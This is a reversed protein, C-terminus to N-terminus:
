SRAARRFLQALLAALAAAVGALVIWAARSGTAHVDFPIAAGFAMRQGIQVVGSHNIQIEAYTQGNSQVLRVSDPVLWGTVNGGRYWGEHGASESYYFVEIAAPNTDVSVPIQITVPADYVGAPLIRYVSSRANAAVPPIPRVNFDEQMRLSGGTETKDEAVVFTQSVPGLIDGKVTVGGVALTVMEGAPLLSDPAFVVWGDRNDGPTTARWAGGSVTGASTTLAAWVTSPDVGDDSGLRIALRSDAAIKSAPQNEVSRPLTTEVIRDDLRKFIAGCDTEDKNDLELRVEVLANENVHVTVAVTTPKYSPASVTVTYNDPRVHTFVYEGYQNQTMVRGVPDLRVTANTIPTISGVASVRCTLTAASAFYNFGSALTATGGENTVSVDVTGPAHAPIAVTLESDGAASVSAALGDFTVSQPNALGDGIIRVVDGGAISGQNPFISFIRPVKVFLFADARIAPDMASRVEIDVTGVAHPPTTVYLRTDERSSEDIVGATGGFLVQRAIALNRGRILIRTGGAASGRAPQVSGITPQGMYTFGQLRTAEGLPTTVVVDVPGEPNPSAPTSVPTRVTVSETTKALIELLTGSFLVSGAGDLRRGNIIVTEGGRVAGASPTISTIAPLPTFVATVNKDADMTLAAVNATGGVDGRWEEFRWGAEPTAILTLQKGDVYAYEGEPPSVRGEGEVSLVLRRITGGVFVARISKDGNMILEVQHLDGSLDGTWRDFASGANPVAGVQLKTNKKFRYLQDSSRQFGDPPLMPSIAITGSGEVVAALTYDYGDRVFVATLTLNKTIEVVGQGTDTDGAAVGTLAGEWHDFRWGLDAVAVAPVSTGEEYTHVGPEPSITGSGSVATTLTYLKGQQKFHATLTKDGDMTVKKPNTKDATNDNWYNFVYGTNATATVSVQRNSPYKGDADPAPDRTLTGAGPPDVVIGLTYRQAENGFVAIVHTDANLTVTIPNETGSADGEWHDFRFGPAPVATVRKQDGKCYSRAGEPPDVTGTGADRVKTYLLFTEDCCKGDFYVNLDRAQLIPIDTCLNEQSLQNGRVDFVDPVLQGPARAGLGANGVLASIDGIDNNYLTLVALSPLGALATVSRIRNRNPYGLDNHLYIQSPSILTNGELYVLSALPGIDSIKNNSLDLIILNALPTIPSLDEIANNSLVLRKLDTLESLASVDSIRNSGLDLSLLSTMDRLPSLDSIKNDSASLVQMFALSRVPALNSIDNNAAYLQTLGSLSEIGYLSSLVRTKTLVGNVTQEVFQNQIELKALGFMRSLPHLDSIANNSLNLRQVTSLTSMPSLDAIRNGGLNLEVLNICARIGTLDSIMANSADLKTLQALDTEYLSGSRIRALENSNASHQLLQLLAWRIKRSLNTDPIDVVRIGCAGSRYVTVGRSEMAPIHTCYAEQNLENGTLNVVDEMDIGANNALAAIDKIMNDELFVFHLQRLNALPVLSVVQNGRLYIEELKTLSALPSIDSIANGQLQLSKIQTCYEIGTLDTIGRYPANLANLGRLQTDLIPPAAQVLAQLVAKELNKDPFTVEVQASAMIPALAAVALLLGPLGKWQVANTRM